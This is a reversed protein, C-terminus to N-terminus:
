NRRFTNEDLWSGDHKLNMRGLLMRQRIPCAEIPELVYRGSISFENNTRVQLRGIEILECRYKECRCNEVM